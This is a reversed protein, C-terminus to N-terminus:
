TSPRGASHTFTSHSHERHRVPKRHGRHRESRQRQVPDGGPQGPRAPRRNARGPFLPRVFESRCAANCALRDAFAQVDEVLISQQQDMAAGCVKHGPGTQKYAPKAQFLITCANASFTIADRKSVFLLDLHAIIDGSVEPRRRHIASKDQSLEARYPEVM